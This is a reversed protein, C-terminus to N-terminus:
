NRLNWRSCFEEKEPNVEFRSEMFDDSLPRLEVRQVVWFLYLGEEASFLRTSM